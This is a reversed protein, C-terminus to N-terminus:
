IKTGGWHRDCHGTPRLCTSDESARFGPDHTRIGSLDHIDTQTQETITDEKTPLPREISQDGTWPIRGDRKLNLFQFSVLRKMSAWHELTPAVPVLSLSLSLSLIGIGWENEFLLIKLKQVGKGHM